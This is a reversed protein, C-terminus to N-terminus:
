GGSHVLPELPQQAGLIGKRVRVVIPQRVGVSNRIFSRMRHIMTDTLEHGSRLLVEGNGTLVDNELIMGELLETVSLSRREQAGLVIEAFAEVAAEDYPTNFEQLYRISQAPSRNQILVDYEILMRLM